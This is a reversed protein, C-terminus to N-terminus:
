RLELRKWNSPYIFNGNVFLVGTYCLARHLYQDAKTRFPGDDRVWRSVRRRGWRSLTRSFRRCWEAQRKRAEVFFEPTPEPCAVTIAPNLYVSQHPEDILITNVRARTAEPVKNWDVPYRRVIVKPRTRMYLATDLCTVIQM